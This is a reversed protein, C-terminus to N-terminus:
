TTAGDIIEKPYDLDRLVQLGGKVLSIGPKLVYTNVHKGNDGEKFTDM